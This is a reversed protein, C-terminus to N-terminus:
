AGKVAGDDCSHAHSARCKDTGQNGGASASVLAKANPLFAFLMACATQDFAHSILALSDDDHVVTNTGSVREFRCERRQFRFSINDFTCSGDDIERPASTNFPCM